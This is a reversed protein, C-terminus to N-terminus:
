LLVESCVSYTTGNDEPNLENELRIQEAIADDEKEYIGLQTYWGNCGDFYNKWLVYIKRSQAGELVEITVKVKKGILSQFYKLFGSTSVGGVNFTPSICGNQDVVVTREYKM